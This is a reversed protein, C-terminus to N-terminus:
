ARCTKGALSTIVSSSPKGCADIAPFVLQARAQLALHLAHRWVLFRWDDTIMRAGDTLHRHDQKQNLWRLRTVVVACEFTSGASAGVGDFDFNFSFRRCSPATWTLCLRIGDVSAASYPPLLCDVIAQRAASCRTTSRARSLHGFINWFNVALCASQRSCAARHRSQAPAAVLGTSLASHSRIAAAPVQKREAVAHTLSEGIKQTAVLRALFCLGVARV